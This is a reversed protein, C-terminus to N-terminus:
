IDENYIIEENYQRLAEKIDSFSFGKRALSNVTKEIEEKSNLKLSYKTKLLYLIKEYEEKEEESLVQKALDGPVGKKILKFYIERQSTGNQGLSQCLRLAYKVDDILGLEKMREVANEVAKQAFGATQLKEALGKETHDARSLYWLARSKARKYDSEYVLADPDDIFVGPKLDKAIVIETDLLLESEDELTLSTLGKRRNQLAIIKM